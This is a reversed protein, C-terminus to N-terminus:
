HQRRAALRRHMITAQETVALRLVSDSPKAADAAKITAGSVLTVPFLQRSLRSKARHEATALAPLAGTFYRGRYGTM